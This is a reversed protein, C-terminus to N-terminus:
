QGGVPAYPRSAEDIHLTHWPVHFSTGEIWQVWDFM